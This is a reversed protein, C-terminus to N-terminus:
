QVIVMADMGVHYECHYAYNGPETFVHGFTEGPALVGSGFEDTPDLRSGSTVTHDFSDNNTWTVATNVAVILQAPQFQNGDIIVGADLEGPTPPPDALPPDAPETCAVLLLLIGAMAFLSLTRTM